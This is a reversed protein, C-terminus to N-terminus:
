PLLEVSGVSFDVYSVNSAGVTEVIEVAVVAGVVSGISRGNAGCYDEPAFASLPVTYSTLEPRVNVRAVPYCGNKWTTKDPGLIRLRLTSAAASSLQFRLNKKGAFDITKEDAATGVFLGIGGWTSGKSTGLKGIVRIVGNAVSMIGKRADGPNESYSFSDVPGGQTTVSTNVFTVIPQGKTASIGTAASDARFSGEPKGNAQAFSSPIVLWPLVFIGVVKFTLYKVVKKM